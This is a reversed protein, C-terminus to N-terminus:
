VFAKTIQLRGSVAHLHQRLRREDVAGRSGQAALNAVSEIALKIEPRLLHFFLAVQYGSKL